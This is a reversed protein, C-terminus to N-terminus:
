VQARAPIQVLVGEKRLMVGTPMVSKLQLAISCGPDSSGGHMALLLSSPDKLPAEPLSSM